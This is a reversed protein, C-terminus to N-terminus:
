MGGKSKASSITVGSFMKLRETILDIDDLDICGVIAEERKRMRVFEEKMSSYEIM